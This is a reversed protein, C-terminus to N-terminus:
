YQHYLQEDDDDDNQESVMELSLCALSTSFGNGRSEGMKWRIIMITIMKIMMIIIKIMIFVSHM